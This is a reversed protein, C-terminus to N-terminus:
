FSWAVGAQSVLALERSLYLYDTFWTHMASLELYVTVSDLHLSLRAGATLSRYPSLKRDVTRLGPIEGASNVVYIRQYFSAANQTYGRTFVTLLWQRSLEDVLALELTHALMGWDDFYFRYDLRL